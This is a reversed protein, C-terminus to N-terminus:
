ENMGDSGNQCHLCEYEHTITSRDIDLDDDLYFYFVTQERDDRTLIITRGMLQKVTQDPKKKLSVVMNIEITRQVSTSNYWHVNFRYWGPLVGRSYSNEYNMNTLDGAGGLDDRLLNWVMGSKTSYGVPGLEKPGMVWLDIDDRRENPWTIEVIMNGPAIIDQDEKETPENLWPVVIVLMAAFAILALLVVDRFITSEDAENNFLDDIM